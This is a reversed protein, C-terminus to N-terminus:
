SPHEFFRTEHFVVALKNVEFELIELDSTLSQRAQNADLM